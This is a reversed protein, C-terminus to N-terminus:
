YTNFIYIDYSAIKSMYYKLYSRTNKVLLKLIADRAQPNSPMLLNKLTSYINSAIISISVRAQSNFPM